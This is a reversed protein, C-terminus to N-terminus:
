CCYPHWWTVACLLKKKPRWVGQAGRQMRQTNQRLRAANKWGAHAVPRALMQTVDDALQNVDGCLQAICCCTHALPLAQTCFHSVNDEKNVDAGAEVLKTCATHGRECATYLPTWGHQMHMARLASHFHYHDM